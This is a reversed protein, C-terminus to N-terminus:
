KRGMLNRVERADIFVTVLDARRNVACCVGVLECKKNILGGGSDGPNIPNTTRIVWADIAQKNDLVFQDHHVERVNGKSYIWLGISEAPSGGVTHTEEGPDPPSAALEVPRSEFPVSEVQLIALDKIPDSKWVTAIRTDRISYEDHDTVLKGNSYKPFIVKIEQAGQVVHYATLVLKRQRDILSGSGVGYKNPQDLQVTIFASSAVARKYIEEPNLPAAAKSPADSPNAAVDKKEGDTTGSKGASLMQWILVAGGIMLIGVGIGVFLLVASSAKKKERKPPTKLPEPEDDIDDFTEENRQRKSSRSSEVPPKRPQPEDDIDLGAFVDVTPEPKPPSVRPKPANADIGAFVNGAPVRVQAQCHPCDVLM